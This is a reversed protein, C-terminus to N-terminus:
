SFGQKYFFMQKKLYMTKYDKTPVCRNGNNIRDNLLSITEVVLKYNKGTKQLKIFFYILILGNDYKQATAVFWGNKM